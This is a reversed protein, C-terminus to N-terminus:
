YCYSSDVYTWVEQGQRNLRVEVCQGDTDVRYWYDSSRSPEIRRQVVVRDNRPRNASHIISGIVLAGAAYKWANHRNGSRHRYGRHNYHRPQYGYHRNSNNSYHGNRNGRDGAQALGASLLLAASLLSITIQKKM